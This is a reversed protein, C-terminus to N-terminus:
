DFFQGVCCIRLIYRNFAYPANKAPSPKQSVAGKPNGELNRGGSKELGEGRLLKETNSSKLTRGPGDVPSGRMRM